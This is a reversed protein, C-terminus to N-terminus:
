LITQRLKGDNLYLKENAYSITLADHSVLVIATGSGNIQKLLEMIAISNEEDLNGTPEDALIIQPNTVLARAIAVRQQEGGSLLGARFNARELMGVRKLAELAMEKRMTSKIGAYGLPVEVNERAIIDPILHFSQFIYGIRSNRIKAMERKSLSAVAKGQFLYKGDSIVDLMGILNLLTSKGSGSRGVIATFAGEEIELDIKKIIDIPGERSPFRKSVNNMQIIM